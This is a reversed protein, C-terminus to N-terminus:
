NNMDALGRKRRVQEKMVPWAEHLFILDAANDPLLGARANAITLGATSFLRESPASTAPVCLSRRALLSLIPLKHCRVKWWELPNNLVHKGNVQTARPIKPAAAYEQMEREVDYLFANHEQEAGEAGPHQEEHAEAVGANELADFLDHYTDDQVVVAHAAGKGPTAVAAATAVLEARVALARIKTEKVIKAKDEVGFTTLEKSRPDLYAAVM